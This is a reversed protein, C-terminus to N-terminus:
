AYSFFKNIQESIFKVDSENLEPYSPLNIGKLALNEAVPFSVGKKYYMPMQHAPNFSPRTEIGKEKLFARLKDRKNADDVMVTYMWYTHFVDKAEKQLQLPLDSLQNNYWNAIKRKRSIIDTANELQACGIAACINTMRYNFGIIDHFYEKGAALGQGKLRLVLDYLEKSNTSVM